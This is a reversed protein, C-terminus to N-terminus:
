KILDAVNIRMAPWAKKRTFKSCLSLHNLAGEWQQRSSSIGGATIWNQQGSVTETSSEDFHETIKPMQM